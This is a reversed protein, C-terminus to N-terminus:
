YKIKNGELDYYVDTDYHVIGDINFNLEVGGTAESFGMGEGYKDEVKKGIYEEVLQGVKSENWMDCAEQQNCGTMEMIIEEVYKNLKM